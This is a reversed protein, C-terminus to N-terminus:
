GHQQSMSTRTKRACVPLARSSEDRSSIVTVRYRPSRVKFIAELALALPGARGHKSLCSSARLSASAPRCCTSVGCVLRTTHVKPRAGVLAASAASRAIKLFCGFLALLCVARPHFDGCLASPKETAATILCFSVYALLFAVAIAGLFWTVLGTVPGAVFAIWAILLAVTLVPLVNYGSVLAQLQWELRSM